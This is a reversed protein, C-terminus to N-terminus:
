VTNMQGDEIEASGVELCFFYDFEVYWVFAGVLRLATSSIVPVVWCYTSRHIGFSAGLSCFSDCAQLTHDDEEMERRTANLPGPKMHALM